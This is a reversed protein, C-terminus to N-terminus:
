SCLGTTECGDASSENCDTFGLACGQEVCMGRECVREVGLRVTCTSVAPTEDVAGDCDEDTGNCTESVGPRRAPATDDCDGGLRVYGSPQVCGVVAGSVESGYGDGDIDRYYAYSAVAEDIRSDCDNDRGDCSEAVGTSSSPDRDDCDRGAPACASDAVGDRDDDELNGPSIAFDALGNCDNDIGDCLEAQAPSTAARTDDCDTALLSYAGGSPPACSFIAQTVDGFGDGDADRYWNTAAAGTDGTGVCDNDIGDCVEPLGPRVRVNADNCDDGYVSFRASTACATMRAGTGRGDGDADRYVDVTVGEDVRTDCDDDIGNCVETAMPNAGRVADNCDDGCMTGNCCQADEYGDGDADTGGRTMPDCDEDVGMRDCVELAGSYVQASMDNCDTGLAMGRADVCAADTEGDADSDPARNLCGRAEESCFDTTCAVDDSCRPVAGRVCLGSVCTETGNCFLGDDCADNDACGPGGDRAADALSGADESPAPEPCGASLSVVIAVWLARKM